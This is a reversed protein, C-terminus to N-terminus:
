ERYVEDRDKELQERATEVFNRANYDNDVIAQVGCVTVDVRKDGDKKHEDLRKLMEDLYRINLSLMSIEANLKCSRQFEDYTLM